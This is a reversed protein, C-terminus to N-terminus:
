ARRPEDPEDGRPDRGHQDPRAPEPDDLDVFRFWVRRVWAEPAVPEAAPQYSPVDFAGAM